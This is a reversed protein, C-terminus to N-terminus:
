CYSRQIYAHCCLGAPRTSCQNRHLLEYRIPRRRIAASRSHPGRDSEHAFRASRSQRALYVWRQNRFRGLIVGLRMRTAVLFRERRVPSSTSGTSTALRIQLLLHPVAQMDRTSRRRRRPTLPISLYGLRPLRDSAMDRMARSLRRISSLILSRSPPLMSASVSAGCSVQLWLRGM